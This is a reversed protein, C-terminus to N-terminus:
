QMQHHSCYIEVCSGKENDSFVVNPIKQVPSFHVSLKIFAVHQFFLIVTLVQFMKLEPFQGSECVFLCGSFAPYALLKHYSIQCEPMAAQLM